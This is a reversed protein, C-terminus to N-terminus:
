LMTMSYFQYEPLSYETNRYEPIRTMLNVLSVVPPGQIYNLRSRRRRRRRRKKGQEKDRDRDKNKRVWPM